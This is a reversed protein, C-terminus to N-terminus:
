YSDVPVMDQNNLVRAPNKELLIRVYDEPYRELLWRRVLSMDTTRRRPSHADSAVMHVCGMDLLWRAAQQAGSGFAGLISGKNMQIVYGKRFWRRAGRPDDMIADYREPHAIIVRYGAGAIRDLIDDMFEYPADFFFECLVYRSHGITPLKGERALEVTEPLCLIEAGPHLKLPLKEAALVARLKEVQRRFLALEELDEEIGRFHPTAVLEGVGCDAAIEAMALAEEMNEAGDDVDPLIHCHIDIMAGM